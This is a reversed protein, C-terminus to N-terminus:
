NPVYMWRSYNNLFRIKKTVIRVLIKKRENTAVKNKLMKSLVIYVSVISWVVDNWMSIGISMIGLYERMPSRFLVMKILRLFKICKEAEFFIFAAFAFLNLSILISPNKDTKELKMVSSRQNVFYYYIALRFIIRAIKTKNKHSKRHTNSKNTFFPIERLISLANTCQFLAVATSTCFPSFDNWVCIWTSPNSSACGTNLMKRFNLLRHYNWNFRFNIRVSQSHSFLLFLEASSLPSFQNIFFKDVIESHIFSCLSHLLSLSCVCLLFLSHFISCINQIVRHFKWDDVLYIFALRLFTYAGNFHSLLWNM